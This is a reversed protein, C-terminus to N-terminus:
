AEPTLQKTTIAAGSEGGWLSNEFEVISNQWNQQLTFNMRAVILKPRLLEHYAWVWRDLLESSNKLVRKTGAQLIYNKDILEKIIDSVSGLSIEANNALERYSLKVNNPSLLLQYILRIGSSQFAKSKATKVKEIKQGSVRLIIDKYKISCNGAADIFNVGNEILYLSASKSISRAIVIHSTGLNSLAKIRSVILEKNTDRIEGKVEISFLKGRIEVKVDTAERNKIILTCEVSTNETFHEIAKELISLESGMNM